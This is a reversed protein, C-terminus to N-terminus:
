APNVQRARLMLSRMLNMLEITTSRAVLLAGALYGAAGLPVEICLAWLAPVPGVRREIAQAALVCAVMPVCAVLARATGLAAPRMYPRYDLRLGSWVLILYIVVTIDVAVCAWLPGFRGITVLSALLMALRAVSTAMVFATRSQARYFAQFTWALPLAAAHVSLVVLMPAIQAWRPPFFAAVLTAAVAALGFALPLILLAMSSVARVLAQGRHKPEIKTFSPFLVDLLQDALSGTSTQALNYALNYSGAVGAGHFRSILLNDWRGSAFDTMNAFALPLSYRFMALSKSWSLRVPRLWGRDSAAAFVAMVLASRGINGLVIAMGGIGPAFSLALATYLVDGIGRTVAILRFRLDRALLKEPTQGIRELATSLVFGPIFRGMGPAGLWPGLLDRALFVAVLAAVGLVLHYVSVHFAAGRDDQGKVILYQGLELNSFQRATVVCVAAVSVEGYENPTIFRALVLTGVLGIIRAGIGTVVNWAM